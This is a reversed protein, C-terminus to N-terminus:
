CHGDQATPAVNTVVSLDKYGLTGTNALDGFQGNATTPTLKFETNAILSDDNPSTSTPVGDDAVVFKANIWGRAPVVAGAAPVGQTILTLTGRYLPAGASNLHTIVSTFVGRKTSMNISWSIGTISVSGSLAYDTAEPFVQTESGSYSGSFTQYNIGDEGTCAVAKINGQLALTANARNIEPTGSAAIVGLTGGLGFCGLAGILMLIKKV